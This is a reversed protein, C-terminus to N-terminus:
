GNVIRVVRKAWESASYPVSLALSKRAMALREGDSLAHMRVMADALSAPADTRCVFGNGDVLEHRAGVSDSCIVPMAAGCAEAVVVGWPEFRSPLVFVGHAGYVRALDDPAVFGLDRIGEGQPCEPGMGACDLPWPDSVRSLYIAYACELTDLGKEPAYRGVYLFSHPVGSALKSEAVDAFRDLRTSFLGRWINRFGLWRAYRAAAAGPVFAADFNRLYGRLAIPALLKRPTFAFPLDFVIIKRIDRLAGDTALFRPLAAHWGVVFLADPKFGIVAGRIADRDFPKGREVMTCDLGRLEHMADFAADEVALPAEVMVKLRVGPQAALARWCDGMYGTVGTWAFLINM